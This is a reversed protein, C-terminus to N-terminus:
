VQHNPERRDFEILSAAVVSPNSTQAICLWTPSRLLAQDPFGAVVAWRGIQYGLEPFVLSAVLLTCGLSHDEGLVAGIFVEIVVLKHHPNGVVPEAVSHNGDCRGEHVRKECVAHQQQVV